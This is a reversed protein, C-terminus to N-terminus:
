RQERILEDAEQKPMYLLEQLKEFVEQEELMTASPERLVRQREEEALVRQREEEERMRIEKEM